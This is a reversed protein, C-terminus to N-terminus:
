GMEEMMKERWWWIFNRAYVLGYVLASVVFGWQESVIAYAIWFPQAALGVAWGWVNKQGALWLGLVGMAMLLWSWWGM